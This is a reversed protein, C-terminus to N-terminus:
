PSARLGLRIGELAPHPPPQQCYRRWWFAYDRSPYTPPVWLAMNAEASVLGECWLEDVMGALKRFPYLTRRWKEAM